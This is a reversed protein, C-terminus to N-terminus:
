SGNQVAEAHEKDSGWVGGFDIQIELSGNSNADVAAKFTEAAEYWAHTTGQTSGFHLVVKEAGADGGDNGGCGTAAFCLSFVLVLSLVVTLIKKM